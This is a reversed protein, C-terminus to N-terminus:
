FLALNANPDFYWYKVSFHPSSCCTLDDSEPNLKKILALRNATLVLGWGKSVLHYKAGTHITAVIMKSRINFIFAEITGEKNDLIAM